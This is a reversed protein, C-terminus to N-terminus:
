KYPRIIEMYLWQGVWGVLSWTWYSSGSSGGPAGKASSVSSREEKCVKEVETPKKLGFFAGVACLSVWFMGLNQSNDRRSNELNLVDFWCFVPLTKLLYVQKQLKILIAWIRFCISGQTAIRPPQNFWGNKDTWKNWWKGLWRNWVACLVFPPLLRFPGVRPNIQVFEPSINM